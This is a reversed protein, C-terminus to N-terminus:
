TMNVSSCQFRYIVFWIFTKKYQKMSECLLSQPIKFISIEPGYDLKAVSLASVAGASLNLSFYLAECNLSGFSLPLRETGRMVKRLLHSHLVLTIHRLLAEGWQAKGDKPNWTSVQKPTGHHYPPLILGGLSLLSDVLSLSQSFSLAVGCISFQAGM